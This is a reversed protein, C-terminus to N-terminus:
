ILLGLQDYQFWIYGFLFISSRSINPFLKSSWRKIAKNELQFEGRDTGLCLKGVMSTAKHHKIPAVNSDQGNSRCDNCFPNLMNLCLNVFMKTPGGLFLWFMWVKWTWVSEFVTIRRCQGFTGMASFMGVLRVQWPTIWRMSWTQRLQAPSPSVM